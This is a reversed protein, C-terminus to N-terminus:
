ATAKLKPVEVIASAAFEADLTRQLQKLKTANIIKSEEVMSNTSLEAMLALNEVSKAGKEVASGLVTLATFYQSLMTFLTAFAQM